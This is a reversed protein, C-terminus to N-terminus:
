SFEVSSLTEKSKKEVFQNDIHSDRFMYLIQQKIMAILYCGNQSILKKMLYRMQHTHSFPRLNKLLFLKLLSINPTLRMGFLFFM